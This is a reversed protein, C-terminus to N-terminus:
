STTIDRPFRLNRSVFKCAWIRPTVNKTGSHGFPSNTLIKHQSYEPYCFCKIYHNWILLITPKWDLINMYEFLTWILSLLQDCAELLHGHLTRAFDLVFCGTGTCSDPLAKSPTRVGWLIKCLIIFVDPRWLLVTRVSPWDHNLVSNSKLLRCQKPLRQLGDPHHQM